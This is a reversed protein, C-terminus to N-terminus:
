RNSVPKGLELRRGSACWAERGSKRMRGVAEIAAREVAEIDGVSRVADIIDAQTRASLPGCYKNFVLMSGAVMAKLDTLSMAQTSAPTVGTAAIVGVLLKSKWNKMAMRVPNFQACPNGVWEFM